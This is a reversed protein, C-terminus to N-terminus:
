ALRRFGDRELTILRAKRALNDARSPPGDSGGGYNGLTGDSKIV